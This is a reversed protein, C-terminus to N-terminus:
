LGQSMGSRYYHSLTLIGMAWECSHLASPDKIIMSSYRPLEIADLWVFYLTSKQWFTTMFAFCFVM